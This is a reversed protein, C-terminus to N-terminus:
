DGILGGDDRTIVVTAARPRAGLRGDPWTSHYRHGAPHMAGGGPHQINVFMTRGDPTLCAGTVECGRPGTMFRRTVGARWDIALMQNNGFLKGGDASMNAGSMDTQVWLIGRDDILLGDPNAYAATASQTGRRAPDADNPNGARQAIDWVFSTAAADRRDEVWRVIQGGENAARPNVADVGPKGPAGRQTNGTLSVFVEGRRPDVACWEARDLPTARLADAAQRARILVDGQSDFGAAATLPGQGWVLPLWQGRGDPLFRAVYLTGEDLLAGFQARQEPTLAAATTTGAPLGAFRKASVFKYLYEFPEDDGMYFVVRGDRALAPAASEHKFRGLATRKVPTSSRDYPDIEVVWGFHNPSNPNAAVDFRRDSAAWDMVQQPHTVGYRREHDSAGPRARFFAHFNEECTLYTGWPTWGNACNALTGATSLGQPSELTRMLPHGAAPGALRMPTRADIRRAGTSPRTVHWGAGSRQVEVISVGVAAQTKATKQASWGSAGDAFALGLDVYEHNIALLGRASGALPFFQMGDHNMGAQLAQEAATNSADPAFKPSGKPDGIPDGWALLVRASYGAPVTVQDDTSTPVEDFGLMPKITALKEASASCAGLVTGGAGAAAWKLMSRRSMRALELLSPTSTPNRGRAAYASDPDATQDLQHLAESM